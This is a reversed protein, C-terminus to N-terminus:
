LSSTLLDRFKNFRCYATIYNSIVVATLVRRVKTL